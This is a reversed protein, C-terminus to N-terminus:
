VGANCIVGSYDSVFYAERYNAQYLYTRNNSMQWPRLSTEIGQRVLRTISHNKAILFWYTDSGGSVNDMYPSTYVKIGYASRYVNVANNATDNVLASDTIQIALTLLPTPVLVISPSCGLVVGAQDKQQALQVIATNFSTSSLVSGAGTNLNSVTGGGILPHATSGFAVGDATLTTTIYGRFIGFANYDQTRRAKLAFDEVTRSWVGHLNDDFLDKSLEIGQAFDLVSITQKNAVQPTSLPVNTVEGIAPFFPSGKFVEQIYAAHETELPKFLDGTQATARSPADTYYDEFNQYFVGDLQTEVIALNQAETFM